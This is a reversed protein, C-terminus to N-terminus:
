DRRADSQEARAIRDLDPPIGLAHSVKTDIRIVDHNMAAVRKDLAMIIGKISNVSGTVGALIFKLTLFVFYGAAMAAAIPFGLEAVIKFFEM